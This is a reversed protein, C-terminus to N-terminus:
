EKKDLDPNEKARLAGDIINLATKIGRWYGNALWGCRKPLFGAIADRVGQMSNTAEAADRLDAAEKRLYALALEATDARATAKTAVSWAQAEKKGAERMDIEHNRVARRAEELAAILDAVQLRLGGAEEIAKRRAGYTAAVWEGLLEEAQGRIEASSKDHAQKRRELEQQLAVTMKEAVAKTMVPKKM